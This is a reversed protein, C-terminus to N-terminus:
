GPAPLYVFATGHPHSRSPVLCQASSYTMAMAASLLKAQCSVRLESAQMIGRWTQGLLSMLCQLLALPTALIRDQPHMVLRPLALTMSGAKRIKRLKWAGTLTLVPGAWLKPWDFIVQWFLLPASFSQSRSTAATDVVTISEVNSELFSNEGEELLVPGDQQHLTRTSLLAAM